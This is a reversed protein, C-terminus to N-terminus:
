FLELDGLSVGWSEIQQLRGLPGSLPNATLTLWDVPSRRFGAQSLATRHFSGESFYAILYDASIQRAMQDVLSAVLNRDPRALLMESIVVERMGNRINPRFVACAALGDGESVTVARYPMTPHQLYRWDLYEISRRTRISGVWLASDADILEQLRPHSCVSALSHPDTRALLVDGTAASTTTARPIGLKRRAVGWIFRPYSLPKFVPTLAGVEQWGMKLYGPRSKDNPTNFILDTGTATVDEIAGLTLRSFIGKRQWNPHTATDVARVAQLEDGQFSFGWRMFARLGIIEGSGSEAIKTHSVGFPSREHKWRWMTETRELAGSAGLAARMLALVDPLDSPDYARVAYQEAVSTTM